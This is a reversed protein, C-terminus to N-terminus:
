AIREYHIKGGPGDRHRRLAGEAVLYNLHALAEGLALGIQFTDIKRDFLVPIVDIGTRPRACFDRAADLRERHHAVLYDLRDHLGRFPLNHSPLVLADAPLARFKDLSELFQRLPDGDPETYWLSVNTTIRPLVQDGSILVGLDACYLAAHDASHGSGTIVRWQRGGIEIREGDWIRRVTLPIETVMRGFNSRSARYEEVSGEDLGNAVCFEVWADLDHTISRSWACHAQLWEAYTMWLPVGFEAHFWGALGLHDPHFHTVIAREVKRGGPARDMVARWHERTADDNFGTDVVTWGDGDELLWLNIHNLAFPLPMRVWHIGPAVETTEGDDLPDFPYSPLKPMPNM